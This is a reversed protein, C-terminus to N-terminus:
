SEHPIGQRPNNRIKQDTTVIVNAAVHFNIVVHHPLRQLSLQWETENGNDILVTRCGASRGAEIDNLIDGIFWSQTLDIDHIQAAKLLLGPRPKRCNCIQTYASIIGQPHHPCYYFGNLPVNVAEFLEKLRQKVPLLDAESFYGHDVGAQTSIVILQYQAAHLLQLGALVCPCLRIKAPNVNYPVDEILTGDKDLFVAPKSLAM